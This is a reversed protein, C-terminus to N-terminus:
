LHDVSRDDGHDAFSEKVDAINRFISGVPSNAKGAVSCPLNVRHHLQLSLSPTKQTKQPQGPKRRAVLARYSEYRRSFSSFWRREAFGSSCRLEHQM